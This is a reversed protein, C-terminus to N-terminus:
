ANGSPYLWLAAFAAAVSLANALFIWWFGNETKELKFFRRLVYDEILANVLVALVFTAAWSVSSFTGLDFLKYLVVGATAEWALGALPILIIGACLSAANMALDAAARKWGFGTLRRVFFYEILLGAAIVPVSLMYKELLLAAWVFNAIVPNFLEM